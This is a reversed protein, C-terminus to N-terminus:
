SAAPRAHAIIAHAEDGPIELRETLAEALATVAPWHEAIFEEARRQEERKTEDASLVPELAEALEDIRQRDTAWRDPYAELLDALTRGQQRASAAPGSYLFCIQDLKHQNEEDGTECRGQSPPEVVVLKIQWGVVHALVAHGAEHIALDKLTPEM